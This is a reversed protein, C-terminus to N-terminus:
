VMVREEAHNEEAKHAHMFYCSLYDATINCRKPPSTNRETAFSAPSRTYANCVTKRHPNGFHSQRAYELAHGLTQLGSLQMCDVDGFNM